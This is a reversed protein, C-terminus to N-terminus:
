ARAISSKNSEAAAEQCIRRACDFAHLTNETVWRTGDYRFWKGLAAEYRLSSAHREIFRLSLAVDSFAPAVTVTEAPEHGNPLSQEDSFKVLPADPEWIPAANAINLLQDPDDSAELWDFVDGGKKTIGPLSVIRVESAIGHLNEAVLEGQNSYAAM